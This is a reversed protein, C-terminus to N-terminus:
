PSGPSAAPDWAAPVLCSGSSACPRLLFCGLTDPCPCPCCSCLVSWLWGSPLVSAPCAASPVRGAGSGVVGGTMLLTAPCPQPASVTHRHSFPPLGGRDACTPFLSSGARRMQGAGEHQQAQFMGAQKSPLSPAVSGAWSSPATRCCSLWHLDGAQQKTGSRTAVSPKSGQPVAIWCAREGVASLGCPATSCESALAFGLERHGTGRSRGRGRGRQEKAEVWSM